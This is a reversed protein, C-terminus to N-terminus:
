NALHNQLVVTSAKCLLMNGVMWSFNLKGQRRAVFTTWFDDEADVAVLQGLIMRAGDAAARRKENNTRSEEGFEVSALRNLILAADADNRAETKRRPLPGFINGDMGM